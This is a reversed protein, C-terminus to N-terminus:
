KLIASVKIAIFIHYIALISYVALVVWSTWGWKPNSKIGFYLAILLAGFGFAKFPVALHNQYLWRGIPNAEIEIGFKNVWHSTMVLDFLNLLYAIILRIKM